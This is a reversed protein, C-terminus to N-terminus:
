LAQAAATCLAVPGQACDALQRQGWIRASIPHERQHGGRVKGIVRGTDSHLLTGPTRWTAYILVM